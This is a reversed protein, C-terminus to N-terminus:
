NGSSRTKQLWKNVTRCWSPSITFTPLQSWSNRLDVFDSFFAYVTILEIKLLFNKGILVVRKCQISCLTTPLPAAVLRAILCFFRSSDHSAHRVRYLAGCERFVTCHAAVAPVQRARHWSDPRGNATHVVTHVSTPIRRRCRASMEVRYRASHRPFVENSHQRGQVCVTCVCVCLIKGYVSNLFM